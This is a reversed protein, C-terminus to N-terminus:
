AYRFTTVQYEGDVLADLPIPMVIPIKTFTRDIRSEGDSFTQNGGEDPNSINFDGMVQLAGEPQFRVDVISCLSDECLIQVLHDRRVTSGPTLCNKRILIVSGGTNVNDPM